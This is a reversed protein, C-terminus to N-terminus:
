KLWRWSLLLPTFACVGLAALPSLVSGAVHIIGKKRMRLLLGIGLLMSAGMACFAWNRETTLGVLVRDLGPRVILDDKARRSRRRAVEAHVADLATEVVRDNPRMLLAEEFAAAARGLDGPEEDKTRARNAYALGRNFSIDPHMYGRDALGEFDLIAADYDGSSLEKTARDFRVDPSAAASANPEAFLVLSLGAVVAFLAALVRSRSPRM